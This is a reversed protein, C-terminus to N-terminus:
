RGSPSRVAEELHGAITRNAPARRAAEELYWLAERTRGARYLGWGLTDLYSPHGPDLDVAGRALELAEESVDGSGIHSWAVNNLATAPPLPGLLLGEYIQLASPRDGLAILAEALGLSAACSAPSLELARRFRERATVADGAEIAAWGAGIPAPAWAPALREAEAFADLAERPRGGARLARGLAERARADEPRDRALSEAASIAKATRGTLLWLDIGLIRPASAGPSIATARALHEEAAMVDGARTRAMAAHLRLALDSPAREIAHELLLAADVPLGGQLLLRAAVIAVRPNGPASRWAATALVLAAEDEGARSAVVALGLLADACAADAHLASRFAEAAEALRDAALHRAGLAVRAQAGDLSSPSVAASRPRATGATWRPDVRACGLALLCAGVAVAARRPPRSM